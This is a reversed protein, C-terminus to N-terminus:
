RPAAATGTTSALRWMPRILRVALLCSVVRRMPWGPRLRRRPCIAMPRSWLRISRSGAKMASSILTPSIRAASMASVSSINIMEAGATFSMPSARAARWSTGGDGGELTDTGDGGELWDSGERGILLDNGAGGNLYNGDGGLTGAAISGANLTDNGDGGLLWDDLRGGYLTDDGAGGFVNDGLDSAYVTDNGDGADVTAAVDIVLERTDATSFTLSAATDTRSRGISFVAQGSAEDVVVSDIWAYPTAGVSADIITGTGSATVVGGADALNALAAAGATVTATLTFRENGEVNTPKGDTGVGNDTLVAVRAFLQTQGAAFTMAAGAALVTWGTLGDVSVEIGAGFDTGVTANVGAAALNVSVASSSPKSLSLRFTAFGDGEGAYSRGVLLTPLAATGDIITAEAAGGIISVGTGGSLQGLFKESAEAFGDNAVAVSVSRRLDGAAFAVSTATQATFDAGSVAIDNNLHGNVTYARQDALKASRLDILDSASTSQITSQGAVDITDGLAFEGLIIQRSIQGSSADFNFRFLAGDSNTKAETLLVSFGGFWDSRHRRTLGLEVARAFNIATEIAFVSNPNALTLVDVLGSNSLYNEYVRAANINGILVSQDFNTPDLRGMEFTNYVARKVYVDGGVIKFDPDTLGVFIGYGPLRSSANKGSFTQTIANNDQTSIPRYVFNSGRTGYNGSQVALPDFLKGGTADLVANFTAAVTNAINAAAEKSGGKRAYINAVEFRGSAFNWQADAGSRPIGGFISGILGGLITGIFSFVLAGVFTLPGGLLAAAIIPAVAGGLAAGIQGGVAEFKVVKSALFSGIFSGAASAISTLNIGDFIAKSTAINTVIQGIVTGTVSNALGGAFGDIGLATVLQATLFSSVAGIGAAKLNSLLEPGFTSFADNTAHSVSQRGILGDVVDGLNDGVTKLFSSALVGVLVNGNALRYGLQQGLIGGVQSFDIGIPNGNIKINTDVARGGSYTTEVTIGPAGIKGDIGFHYGDQVKSKVVTPVGNVLAVELEVQRQKSDVIISPTQILLGSVGVTPIIRQLRSPLIAGTVPDIQPLLSQNRAGLRSSIIGDPRRTATVVIENAQDESIGLLKATAAVADTRATPDLILPANNNINERLSKIYRVIDHAAVGNLPGLQDILEFPEPGALRYGSVDSYKPVIDSNNRFHVFGSSYQIRHLESLIGDFNPVFGNYLLTNFSVGFSGFTNSTIIRSSLGRLSADARLLQVMQGGASHGNLDFKATPYTDILGFVFRQVDAYMAGNGGTLATQIDTQPLERYATGGPNDNVGAIGVIITGTTINQFAIADGGVKGPGPTTKGVYRYNSTFNTLETPTFGTDFGSQRIANALTPGSANIPINVSAAAYGLSAVQASFIYDRAFLPPPPPPPPPPPSGPM